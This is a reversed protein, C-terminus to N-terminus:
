RREYVVFSYSYPNKEDRIGPTRSVEKWVSVDIEPFHTDGEFTEEIHTIYLRDAVAMTQKYVEGGGIVFVEKSASANQLEDLSTVITVGDLHLDANRTIVINERGPLPRGISEFTKRGMVVPHGMTIKKFYALDAPLRWPMDNDAGILRKQDMAAILSIM